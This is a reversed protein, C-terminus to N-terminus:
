AMLRAHTTVFPHCTMNRGADIALVSTNVLAGRRVAALVPVHKAISGTYAEAATAHTELPHVVRATATQAGAAGNLVSDDKTGASAAVAVPLWFLARRTSTAEATGDVM